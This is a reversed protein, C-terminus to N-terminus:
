LWIDIDEEEVAKKNVRRQCAIIFDRVGELRTHVEGLQEKMVCVTSEVRPPHELSGLETQVSCILTSIRDVDHLLVKVSNERLQKPEM